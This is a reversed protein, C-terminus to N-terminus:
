PHPGLPLRPRTHHSSSRVSLENPPPLALAKRKCRAPRGGSRKNPSDFAAPVIVHVHLLPKRCWRWRWRRPKSASSCLMAPIRYVVTLCSVKPFVVVDASSGRGFATAIRPYELSLSIAGSDNRSSNCVYKILKYLLPSCQLCTEAKLCRRHDCHPDTSAILGLCPHRERHLLYRRQQLNNYGEGTEDAARM